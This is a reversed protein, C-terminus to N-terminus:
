WKKNWLQKPVRNVLDEIAAEMEEKTREEGVAQDELAMTHGVRQYQDKIVARAQKRIIDDLSQRPVIAYVLVCDLAEAARKLNKLSVSGSVESQELMAVRSPAVGLREAYQRITMGLTSRIARIWGKRPPSLTLLPRYAEFTDSLQKRAINMMGRDNNMFKHVYGRKNNM